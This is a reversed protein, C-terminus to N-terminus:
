NRILTKISCCTVVVSTETYYKDLIAFVLAEAAQRSWRLSMEELPKRRQLYKEVTGNEAYELLIGRGDSSPGLYKSITTPRDPTALREYAEKERQCRPRTGLIDDEGEDSHAFRIVTNTNPYLAVAGSTGYGVLDETHIGAPQLM